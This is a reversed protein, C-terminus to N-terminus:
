FSVQITGRKFPDQDSNKVASFPLLESLAGGRKDVSTETTIM